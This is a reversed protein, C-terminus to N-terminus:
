TIWKAPRPPRCRTSCCRARTPGPARRPDRRDGTRGGWVELQEIAAARFTDAACLLVSHGEAQLPQGAQRHQHDQRVRERGGGDGGRAARDSEADAAGVSGAGGASTGPDARQDGGCRGVAAPRRAPPHEGSDRHDNSGRHRGHDAHIRARGSSRRRDREQGCIVDELRDVLGTRTKQVGAKLRELLNPEQPVSGFLTQIM